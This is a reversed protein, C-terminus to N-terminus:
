ESRSKTIHDLGLIVSLTSDESCVVKSVDVVQQTFNGLFGEFGLHFGKLEKFSITESLGIELPNRPFFFVGKHSLRTLKYHTKKEERGWLHELKCSIYNIVSAGLTFTLM